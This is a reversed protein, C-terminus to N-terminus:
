VYTERLRERTVEDPTGAIKGTLVIRLNKVEMEKATLYGVLPEIGFPVLQSDRVYDMKMNDALRELETFKGTKKTEEAGIALLDHFGFPGLKEALGAYAEEYVSDMYKFDFNGGELFVKQYFNRPKHTERLRVMTTVNLIDIM